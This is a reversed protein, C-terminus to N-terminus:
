NVSSVHKDELNIKKSIHGQSYYSNFSYMLFNHSPFREITDFLIFDTATKGAGLHPM